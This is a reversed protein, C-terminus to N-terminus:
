RVPVVCRGDSTWAGGIIELCQTREDLAVDYVRLEDVELRTRQGGPSETDYGVYLDTVTEGYVDFAAFESSRIREGIVGDVYIELDAGVGPYRYLLHRWSSADLEISACGGPGASPRGAGYCTTLQPSVGRYSHFGHYESRCGVFVPGSLTAIQERVWLSITVADLSVLVRSTDRLRIHGPDGVILARNCVGREVFGIEEVAEGDHAGVLRGHNLLESEFPYHLLPERTGAPMCASGADPERSADPESTAADRAAGADDVSSAKGWLRLGSKAGCAELLLVFGAVTILNRRFGSMM